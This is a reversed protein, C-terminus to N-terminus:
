AKKKPEELVKWRNKKDKLVEGTMMYNVLIDRWANLGSIDDDFGDLTLKKSEPDGVDPFVCNEFGEELIKIMDVKGLGEQSENQMELAWKAGPHQLIYHIGKVEIRTQKM